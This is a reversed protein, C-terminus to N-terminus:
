SILKLVSQPQLNAQAVMSNAAQVLIQNKVFGIAEEAMDADRIRSESAKINEYGIMLNELAFELRNEYAGLNARQKSVKSLAMDLEGIMRNSSEQSEASIIDGTTIDKLGLNSSTMSEIYVREREDMNAGIHFWMSSSPVSGGDSPMAYRGSLMNLTNFQAHSAIRDIEDVLVSVEAQIHVRDESTYIGNSAQIMLERLRQLIGQTSGLYGETTRIFSIGDQANMAARKLGMFQARMKESVALGSADDAARNIRLGSSLKEISKRQAMDNFKLNRSANIASFNNNIIM